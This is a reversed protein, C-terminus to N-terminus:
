NIFFKYKLISKIAYFGDSFKIKKGEAATRGNYSIPVEKILINLNALKTTLEPCFSFGM